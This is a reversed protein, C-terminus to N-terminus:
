QQPGGFRRLPVPLIVSEREREPRQAALSFSVTGASWCPPYILLSTGQRRLLTSKWLLGAPPYLPLSNM